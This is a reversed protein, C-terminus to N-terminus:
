QLYKASQPRGEVYLIKPRGDVVVSARFKNNDLFTDGPAKVQAELTVPGTENKISGEFAVRNLGRVLQLKRTGLTKDGYKVEVEAPPDVQGNVHAELPSLDETPAPTPAIHTELGAIRNPQGRARVPYRM